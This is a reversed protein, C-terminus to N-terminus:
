LCRWVGVMEGGGGPGSGPGKRGERFCAKSGTGGHFLLGSNSSKFWPRLVCTSICLMPSNCPWTESWHNAPLGSWTEAWDAGTVDRGPSSQAAESAERGDVITHSLEGVSRYVGPVGSRFSTTEERTGSRVCMGFAAGTLLRKARRCGPKSRGGTGESIRREVPFPDYAACCVIRWRCAGFTRVPAQLRRLTGRRSIRLFPLPFRLGVVFGGVRVVIRTVKLSSIIPGRGRRFFALKRLGTRGQHIFWQSGVGLFDGLLHSVTM